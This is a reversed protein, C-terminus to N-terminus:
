IVDTKYSFQQTAHLKLM